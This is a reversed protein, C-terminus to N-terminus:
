EGAPKMSYGHMATSSPPFFYDAISDASCILVFLGVVVIGALFNKKM